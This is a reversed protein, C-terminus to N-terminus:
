FGYPLTDFNNQVVRKDYGLSFTKTQDKNVITKTKADRTIANKKGITVTKSPDQIVENMVDGNIKQGCTYNLTFGKIKCETKGNSVEYSYSKPGTGVWKTIYGGGLEDTLEGLSDGTPILTSGDNEVYWCSDTDYGLVGTGIMDLVGYLMERAYSTTFAAIPININNNNYVFQNKLNYNMQVMDKNLFQVNIDEHTDNLLIKYFERPETVYETQPMNTRQGYKGWLSNLCLKSIQRMGPNYKIDGLKIGLHNKVRHKFVDLDEDPPPASSEMKLKMFDRVYGKFLTDSTKSFHWVEYVEIMRYGKERALAVENTCWTGTLVREDPSHDCKTQQQRVSCTRCLPFLLKDSKGCRLRVPLVPHYM